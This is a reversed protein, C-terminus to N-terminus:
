CELPCVGVPLSDPQTSLQQQPCPHLKHARHICSQLGATEDAYHHSTRNGTWPMASPALRSDQRSRQVTEETASLYRWYPEAIYRYLASTSVVIINCWVVTTWFTRAWSWKEKGPQARFKQVISSLDCIGRCCHATVDDADKRVLSHKAAGTGGM